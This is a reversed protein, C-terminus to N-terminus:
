YVVLSRVIESKRIGEGGQLYRLIKAEEGLTPKKSTVRTIHTEAPVTVGGM